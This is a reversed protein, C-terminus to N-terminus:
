LIFYRGGTQAVTAPSGIEDLQKLVDAAQRPQEPIPVDFAALKEIAAADPYVPRNNVADMYAYAYAKAQEFLSKEQTHAFMTNQISPLENKM